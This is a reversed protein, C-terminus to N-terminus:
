LGKTINWIWNLIVLLVLPIAIIPKRIFSEVRFYFDYLTRKKTTIDFIIWIPLTLMIVAIILGFPNIYLAELIEGHLLNLVSRTSGCSPCPVGTVRKILCVGGSNKLELQITFILWTYGATCALSLITYLKKRGYPM